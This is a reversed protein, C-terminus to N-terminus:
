PKRRSTRAPRASSEYADHVSVAWDLLERLDPYQWLDAEHKSERVITPTVVIVLETDTDGKSFSEALKGLLPIDSIGPAATDNNSIDRTVLGGIVLPQGDRVRTSTNISRVDFAATNLDSGTSSAIQQTLATDPLSVTPSVDLTIRDQDDVMARVRLEVGFPKFETGSFVGATNSGVSDGDAIGAPAFASPVPVEGGARFVASEGALVTLTPRSLTRSIGQEELMSFLLDFAYSGTAVQLNSSLAGGILQLANEVESASAEREQLGSITFRGANNYGKSILSLDPRWAKLRVRDVEHMQVAVRVQPLDRVQIMSLIRGGAASVLKSRGINARIENDLRGDGGFGSFGGGGAAGSRGALLGGSEDALVNLAGSEQGGGSDSVQRSAVSLIRTLVVQNEVEGSLVLTDIGDDALDGRRIRSVQVKEGGIPRIAELIKQESSSPLTEVQILNIVAASRDSRGTGASVRLNADAMATGTDTSQVLIDGGGPARRNGVELYNRAVAEAAQRFKITPVTGRLVLAARDPALEIRIGAHVDRLARRLVTMDQVVSFLFTESTKDTYWVMVSTRGVTKALALVEHSGLVELELTDQKGVAVRELAKNFVLRTHTWQVLDRTGKAREGDATEVFKLGAASVLQCACVLMVGVAWKPGFM